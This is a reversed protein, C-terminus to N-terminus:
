QTLILQNRTSEKGHVVNLSFFVRSPKARQEFESRFKKLFGKVPWAAGEGLACITNGEINSAVSFLLDVDHTTADGKVMRKLIKEMWGCGERCPTCQGCSEHHYFHALRLLVKVLDTDEDMVMVGATGIYSGFEKLSENDMLVRDVEDPHIPPMSSGGPIIAKIKKGGPIGGGIDYLLEKLPIGTPLEYVGPKNIHGSLGFLLTGPHKPAGIKSYADAGIAFIAPVTALTEVNNITTPCGWLGKNAPFPPKFRPYAREGELSNMLSTEEGCVYAGAGKHVVIDMSFSSGFTQKMAEGIFGKAYAEKVADETCRVWKHYEGRIYIFAKTIGMAYGAILIGEILQHPNFELIQRDKFSGPESEDGNIALYKPKDNSKPMFSWKMGTSFCAGGRGRLGSLKVDNIVDDPSMSKLVKRLQEYGGNATYVDIKHLDKIQPIVLYPSTYM